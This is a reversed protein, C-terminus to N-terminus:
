GHNADDSIITRMFYSVASEELPLQFPPPPRPGSDQYPLHWPPPPPPALPSPLPNRAEYLLWSDLYRLRSTHRKGTIHSEDDWRGCLCCWLWYPPAVHPILPELWIAFPNIQHPTAMAQHLVVEEWHLTTADCSCKCSLAEVFVNFFVFIMAVTFVLPGCSGHLM